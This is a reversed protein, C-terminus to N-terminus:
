DGIRRNDDAIAQDPPTRCRRESPASRSAGDLAELGDEIADRVGADDGIEAGGGDTVEGASAIQDYAVRFGPRDACLQQPSREDVASTRTPLYGFQKTVDDLQGKAM